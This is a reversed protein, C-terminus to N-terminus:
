AQCVSGVNQSELFLPFFLFSTKIFTSKLYLTTNMIMVYNDNTLHVNLLHRSYFSVLFSFFFFGFWNELAVDGSYCIDLETFLKISYKNSMPLAM